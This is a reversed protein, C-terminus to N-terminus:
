LTFKDNTGEVALDRSNSDPRDEILIGPFEDSPPPLSIKVAYKELLRNMRKGFLSALSSVSISRSSSDEQIGDSSSSDENNTGFSSDYEEETTQLNPNFKILKFPKMQIILALFWLLHHSCNTPPPNYNRYQKTIIRM